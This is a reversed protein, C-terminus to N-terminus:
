TLMDVNNDHNSLMMIILIVIIIIISTVVGILVHLSVIIYKWVDEMMWRWGINSDFFADPIIKTRFKYTTNNGSLYYEVIGFQIQILPLPKLPFSTSLCIRADGSNWEIYITFYDTNFHLANAAGFYEMHDLDVKQDFIYKQLKRQIEINLCPNVSSFDLNSLFYIIFLM